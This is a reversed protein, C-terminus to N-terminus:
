TWYGLVKWHEADRIDAYITWSQDPFVSKWNSDLAIESWQNKPWGGVTPLIITKRPLLLDAAGLVVGGALLAKLIDRRNM